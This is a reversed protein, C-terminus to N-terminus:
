LRGENNQRWRDMEILVAMLANKWGESYVHAYGATDAEIGLKTLWGELVDIPIM